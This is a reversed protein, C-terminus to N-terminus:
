LFRESLTKYRDSDKKSAKFRGRWKSAFSKQSKQATLKILMEEIVHSLSVGQSKAYAKAEPILNEDITVTLKTKM